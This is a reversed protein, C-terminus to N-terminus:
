SRSRGTATRRIAAAVDPRSAMAEIQAEGRQLAAPSTHISYYGCVLEHPHKRASGIVFDTAGVAELSVPAGGDEFVALEGELRAGDTLLAGRNVALWAVDHGENPSFTWREGGALTVHLYTMDAGYPIPSAVLNYSGLLVRAPGDSEIADSAIYHSSAPSLELAAPLAVWLQYGRVAEQARPDSWHWVGGAAQMWEVSGAHLVGSKGTSDGYDVTGALLTTHTAIGSHPHAPFGGGALGGSEFYDLFVFPKVLEGLDGPSM